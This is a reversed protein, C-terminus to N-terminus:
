AETMWSDVDTPLSRSYPSERLAPQRTYRSGPVELSGQGPDETPCRLEEYGDNPNTKLYNPISYGNAEMDIDEYIDDTTATLYPSPQRATIQQQQEAAQRRQEEM